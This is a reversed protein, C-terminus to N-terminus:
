VDSRELMGEALSIGDPHGVDCWRGPYALGHLRGEALMMDWVLNLSFKGADIAALRDTKIIQVGSYVLGPGRTIQGDKNLVFDGKGQHGVANQPSLCM